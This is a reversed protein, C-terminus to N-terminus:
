CVQGRGWTPVYNALGSHNSVQITINGGMRSLHNDSIHPNCFKQYADWGHKTAALQTGQDTVVRKIVKFIFTLNSVLQHNKIKGGNLSPKKLLQSTVPM